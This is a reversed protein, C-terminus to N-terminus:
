KTKQGCAKAKSAHQHDPRLQFSVYFWRLIFEIPEIAVHAVHHTAENSRNSSKRRLHHSKKRTNYLPYPWAQYPYGQNNKPYSQISVFNFVTVLENPENFDSLSQIKSCPM